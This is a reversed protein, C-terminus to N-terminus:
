AVVIHRGGLAAAALVQEALRETEAQVEDLTWYHGQLMSRLGLRVADPDGPPCNADGSHACDFGIWYGIGDEHACPEIEAFTLGGHVDVDIDDYPQGHFRHGAPVRVYGCRHKMVGEWGGVAHALDARAVVCDLGAYRWEKEIADKMPFCM